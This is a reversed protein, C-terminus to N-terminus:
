GETELLLCKVESATALKPYEELVSSQTSWVLEIVANTAEGVLALAKVRRNRKSDALAPRPPQHFCNETVFHSPYLIYIYGPGLIGALVLLAKM